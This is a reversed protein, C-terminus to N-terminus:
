RKDSYNLKYSRNLGYRSKRAQGPSERELVALGILDATGTRILEVRDHAPCPRLTGLSSDDMDMLLLTSETAAVSAKTPPTPVAPTSPAPVADAAVGDHPM